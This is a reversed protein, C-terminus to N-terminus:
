EEPLAPGIASADATDPQDIPPLETPGPKPLAVQPLQDIKFHQYFKETVQLWYSRGDAQRRKKVFGQQVLDPVHQYAGSGRLDVLDTQSIPGRLAIAALTRLAGLGIDLPVLRDVMPQYLQRLQLSYGAETEAIELAGDRHAYDNMLEILGAEATQRDCQAYDAIQAITLPQAKLYLIAEITNALRPM